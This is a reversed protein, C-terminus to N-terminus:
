EKEILRIMYDNSKTVSNKASINSPRSNNIYSVNNSNNIKLFNEQNSEKSGFRMHNKQTKINSVSM